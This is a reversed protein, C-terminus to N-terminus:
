KHVSLAAKAIEALTQALVVLAGVIGIFKMDLGGGSRPRSPVPSRPVQTVKSNSEWQHELVRDLKESMHKMDTKIETVQNRVGGIEGMIRGGMEEQDEVRETISSLRERFAALDAEVSM